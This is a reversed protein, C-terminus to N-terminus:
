LGPGAAPPEPQPTSCGSEARRISAAICQQVGVPDDTSAVDEEECILACQEREDARVAEAYARLQDSTYLYVPWCKEQPERDWCFDGDSHIHSIPEPLPVTM